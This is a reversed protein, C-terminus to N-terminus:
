KRGYLQNLDEIEHALELTLESERVRWRWNGSSRSPVNMRAESGLRLLDRMPAVAWGAVSSWATRILDWHLDDGKSNLYRCCLDREERSVAAFWGVATDNDHTGTYVVTNTSFNHPLFPNRSDDNFALQLVRMGPLQFVNRLAVVQETIVGLDEAIFSLAGLSQRMNEFFREGPGPAWRGSLATESEVPIEWVVQFARFHDLRMVDLMTLLRRVRAHWWADVSTEMTAWGYLPNGWRQGIPSFYDAPVGAVVEPQGQRNLQFLEPQAWVDASNHAVYIPLDGVISLGAQGAAYHLSEWQHHFIFQLM